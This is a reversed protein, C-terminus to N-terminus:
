FSMSSASASLFTHVYVQVMSLSEKQATHTDCMQVEFVRCTVQAKHRTLQAEHSTGQPVRAKHSRVQSEHSRHGTVKHARRHSHLRARPWVGEERQHTGVDLDHTCGLGPM